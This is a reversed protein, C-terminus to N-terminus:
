ELAARVVCLFGFSHRSYCGYQTNHSYRYRKRNESKVCSIHGGVTPHLASFDQMSLICVTRFLIRREMVLEEGKIELKVRWESNFILVMKTKEVFRSKMGVKKYGTQGTVRNEAIWCPTQFSVPASIKRLILSYFIYLIFYFSTRNSSPKERASNTNEKLNRYCM